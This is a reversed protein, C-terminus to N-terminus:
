PSKKFITIVRYVDNSQYDYGSFPATNASLYANVTDCFWNAQKVFFLANQYAKESFQLEIATIGADSQAAVGRAVQELRLTDLYTGTRRYYQAATGTCAVPLPNEPDLRHTRLMEQETLNFYVHSSGEPRDTDNWTADVQYWDGDIRVANWMHAEGQSDYGSVVTASLGARWLLLQFARSYGECVARRDVLAGYSSFAHPFGSAPAPSQAATTHYECHSLLADHLQREKEFDGDATVTDLLDQVAQELAAAAPQREAATMIYTLKLATLRKQGGYQRGDVGYTNGLHFFQPNDAIFATYLAKAQDETELPHPLTVSLGAIQTDGTEKSLRVFSDIAMGQKVAAYVAGYNQQQEPSLTQYCLQQGYVAVDEARPTFEGSSFPLDVPFWRCGGCLLCLVLLCSCLRKM